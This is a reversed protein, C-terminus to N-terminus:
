RQETRLAGSGYGHQQEGRARLYSAHANASNGHRRLRSASIRRQMPPGPVNTKGHRGFADFDTERQGDAFGHVNGCDVLCVAEREITFKQPFSTRWGDSGRIGAVDGDDAAADAYKGSTTM